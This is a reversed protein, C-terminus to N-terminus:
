GQKIRLRIASAHGQLGEADALRAAQEGLQDLLPQNVGFVSIIKQFDRVNVPSSFRATRSTPMIHSPGVIYDGLAECATEGVFIGGAHEVKPVWAWPDHLLLCLHEPAYDNALTLAEDLDTTLVIASGRQLSETIIPQRPLTLLQQELQDAVKDALPRSPTLLLASALVDHEAQALLDAAVLAPDASDDAILLTETPGPLGAIGVSGFVQKMALVVFLGGPGLIKDVRPVSETGYALAAIGQAGGVQFVRLHPSNQSVTTAAVHAAGLIVDAIAIRQETEDEGFDGSPPSIVIIEKVGAVAAPVAAMLLSSPYLARGGPAYIGVRDLPRILQGLRSDGDETLWDSDRARQHQHFTHIREASTHLAERLAPALRQYAAAIERQPVELAGIEQGDLAASYHRLAQDGHARVDAIIQAVGEAATNVPRRTADALKALAAPPAEADDIIARKLVTALATPLDLIRISPM